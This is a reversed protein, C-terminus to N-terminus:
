RVEPLNVVAFVPGELDTFHPALAEREEPSFEEHVADFPM